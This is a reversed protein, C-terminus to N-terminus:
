SGSSSGPQEVGRWYEIGYSQNQTTENAVMAASAARIYPPFAAVELGFASVTVTKQGPREFHKPAEPSPTSTPPVPDGEPAEVVPPPASCQAGVNRFLANGVNVLQNRAVELARRSAQPGLAQPRKRVDNTLKELYPVFLQISQLASRVQPCQRSNGAAVAAALNAEAAQRAEIIARTFERIELKAPRAYREDDALEAPPTYRVCLRSHWEEARVRSAFTIIRSQIVQAKVPLAEEQPQGDLAADAEGLMRYALAFANSARSLEACDDREAAPRLKLTDQGVTAVITGALQRIEGPKMGAIRAFEADEAQAPAGLVACGAILAAAIAHSLKSLDSGRDASAAIEVIRSKSAVM